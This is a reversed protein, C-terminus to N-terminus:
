CECGNQTLPPVYVNSLSQLLRNKRDELLRLKERSRKLTLKREQKVRQSTTKEKSLREAANTIAVQIEIDRDLRSIEANAEAEPSKFVHEPFKYTTGIKRRLSPLPHDPSTDMDNPWHGIIRAERTCLEQLEDELKTLDQQLQARRMKLQTYMETDARRAAALAEVDSVPPKVVVPITPANGPVNASVNGPLHGPIHGPAHGPANGHRVKGSRSYHSLQRTLDSLRSVSHIRTRNPRLTRKELYFLHQNKANEFLSAAMRTGQCYWARTACGGPGGRRSNERLASSRSSADYIEISFKKDRCHINDLHKWPYFERAQVKDGHDYVGIGKASFGLWMSVDKKDKVSYYHIGYTPLAMVANLYGVLAQGRNKGSMKQYFGIVQNECYSISVHEKLTRAPLWSMRQLKERTADDSSYDGSEAQLAFAAVEFV